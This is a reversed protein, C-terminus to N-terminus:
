IMSFIFFALIVIFIAKIFVVGIYGRKKKKIDSLDQENFCSQTVMGYTEIERIQHNKLAIEIDRVFEKRSQLTDAISAGVAFILCGLSVFITFGSPDFRSIIVFVFFGLVSFVIVRRVIRERYWAKFALFMRRIASTRKPQEKEAM